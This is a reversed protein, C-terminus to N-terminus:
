LCHQATTTDAENSLLLLLPITTTNQDHDAQASCEHATGDAVTPKTM